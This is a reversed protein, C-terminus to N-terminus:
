VCVCMCVCVCKCVCVCACVCVYVCVLIRMIERQLLKSNFDSLSNRGTVPDEGLATSLEGRILVGDLLWPFPVLSMSM